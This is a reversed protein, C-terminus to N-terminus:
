YVLCIVTVAVSLLPPNGLLVPVMTKRIYDFGGDKTTSIDTVAISLSVKQENSYTILYVSNSELFMSSNEKVRKIEGLVTNRWANCVNFCQRVKFDTIEM